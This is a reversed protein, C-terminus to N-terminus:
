WHWHEACSRALHSLAAAAAIILVTLPQRLAKEIVPPVISKRPPNSKGSPNNITVSVPPMAIAGMHASSLQPLQGPGLPVPATGPPGVLFRGTGEAIADSRGKAEGKAEAASERMRTLNEQLREFEIKDEAEHDEFRKHLARVTKGENRDQEYDRLFRDLLEQRVEVDLNPRSPRPPGAMLPFPLM